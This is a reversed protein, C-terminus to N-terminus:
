PWDNGSNSTPKENFEPILGFLECNEQDRLSKKNVADTAMDEKMGLLVLQRITDPAIEALAEVLVKCQRKSAAHLERWKARENQQRLEWQTTNFNRQVVDLEWAQGALYLVFLMAVVIQFQHDKIWSLKRNM